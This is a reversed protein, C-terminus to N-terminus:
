PASTAPAGDANSSSTTSSGSSPGPVRFFDLMATRIRRGDEMAFTGVIAVDVGDLCREIYGKLAVRNEIVVPLGDETRQIEMPEGLDFYDDATPEKLRVAKIAEGHAAYVRSLEVTKVPRDSM